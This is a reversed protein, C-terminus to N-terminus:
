PINFRNAELEKDFEKWFDEGLDDPEAFWEELLKIAKLNNQSIETLSLTEQLYDIEKGQVFPAQSSDKYRFTVEPDEHTRCLSSLIYGIAEQVYRKLNTSVEPKETSLDKVYNAVTQTIMVDVM